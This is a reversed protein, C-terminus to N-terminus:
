LFPFDTSFPLITECRRGTQKTDLYCGGDQTEELANVETLVGFLHLRLQLPDFLGGDFVTDERSTWKPDRQTVTIDCLYIKIEHTQPQFEDVHQLDARNEQATTQWVDFLTLVNSKEVVLDGGTVGYQLHSSVSIRYHVAPHPWVTLSSVLPHPCQEVSHKNGRHHCVDVYFLM